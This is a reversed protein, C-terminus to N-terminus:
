DPFTPGQEMIGGGREGGSIRWPPIYLKQTPFKISFFMVNGRFASRKAMYHM